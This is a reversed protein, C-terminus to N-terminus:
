PNLFVVTKRDASIYTRVGRLFNMGLLNEDELGEHAGFDRFVFFGIDLRKVTYLTTTYRKSVTSFIESSEKKAQLKKLLSSRLIMSNCGTDITFQETAINTGGERLALSIEMIGKEFGSSVVHSVGSLEVHDDGNYLVLRKKPVDLVMAFGEFYAIGVIADYNQKTQIAELNASIVNEKATEPMTFPVVEVSASSAVTELSADVATVYQGEVVDDSEAVMNSQKFLLVDQRQNKIALACSCGTDFLLNVPKDNIHGKIYLFGDKGVTLPITIVASHAPNWAFLAACLLFVFYFTKKAM